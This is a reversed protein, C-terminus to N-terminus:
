GLHCRRGERHHRGSRWGRTDTSVFRCASQSHSACTRDRRATALVYVTITDFGPGVGALSELVSVTIGSGGVGGGIGVPPERVVNWANSGAHGVTTIVCPHCGLPRSCDWIGRWDLPLEVYGCGILFRKWGALHIHQQECPRFRVGMMNLGDACVQGRVRFTGLQSVEQLSLEPEGVM